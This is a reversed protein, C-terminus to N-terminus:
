GHFGSIYLSIFDKIQLDKIEEERWGRAVLQRRRGSTGSRGETVIPM